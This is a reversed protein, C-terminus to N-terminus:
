DYAQGVNARFMDSCLNFSFTTCTFETGVDLQYLNFFDRLIFSSTILVELFYYFFINYLHTTLRARVNRNHTEKQQSRIALCDERERAAERIPWMLLVTVTYLLYLM